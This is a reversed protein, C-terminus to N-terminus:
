RCSDQNSIRLRVALAQRQLVECSERARKLGDLPVEQTMDDLFSFSINALCEDYEINEHYPNFMNNAILCVGASIYTCATMWIFAPDKQEIGAFLKMYERCENVLGHWGVPSPAPSVLEGQVAERGFTQLTQLWRTEMVHVQYISIRCFLHTAFLVGFCRCSHVEGVSLIAEPRFQQPVRSFWDDLRYRLVAVKELKEHSSLGRSSTSYMANYIEGQIQALQVRSLFFNFSSVGDAGTFFGAGDQPDSSPWELDIDMERQIPPQKTRASIDRDLIYAIWFVRCRELVVSGDLHASSERTHLGLQHALRLAMAILMTAPKLDQVGQFLLTMGVLVQVSLLTTEGMVIKNLVSQANKTYKATNKSTTEEEPPTQRHVLALMTNIVAWTTYDRPTSYTYWGNIVRLLRDPNFLPITSNFGAIYKQAASMVEHQPPLELPGEGNRAEM